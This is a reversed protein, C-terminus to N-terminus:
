NAKTLLEVLKRRQAAIREPLQCGASSLMQDLQVDDFMLRSSDANLETALPILSACASAPPPAAAAAAPASGAIPALPQGDPRLDGNKDEYVLLTNRTNEREVIYRFVTFKGPTDNCTEPVDFKVATAFSGTVSRGQLALLHPAGQGLRVQHRASQNAGMSFEGGRGAQFAAWKGSKLQGRLEGQLALGTLNGIVLISDCNRGTGKPIDFVSGVVRDIAADVRQANEKRGAETSAIAAASSGGYPAGPQVGMRVLYDKAARYQADKGKLPGTSFSWELADLATSGGPQLAQTTAGRTALLEMADVRGRIAAVMFPTASDQSQNIDAGADLLIKIVELSEKAKPSRVATILATAGGADRFAPDLRHETLVKVFEAKGFYSLAFVASQRSAGFPVNVNFQPNADLFEDLKEPRSGTALREFQSKEAPTQAVAQAMAGLFLGVSLILSALLRVM